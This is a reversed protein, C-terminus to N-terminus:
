TEKGEDEIIFDIWRNNRTDYSGSFKKNDRLYEHFYGKIVISQDKSATSTLKIDSPYYGMERICLEIQKRIIRIDVM